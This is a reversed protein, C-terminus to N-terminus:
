LNNEPDITQKIFQWIFTLFYKVFFTWGLKLDMTIHEIMADNSVSSTNNIKVM